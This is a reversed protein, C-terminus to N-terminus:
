EIRYHRRGSEVDDSEDESDAIPEFDPFRRKPIFWLFEYLLPFRDHNRVDFLHWQDVPEGNRIANRRYNKVLLLLAYFIIEIDLLFVDVMMEFQITRAIFLAITFVHIVHEVADCFPETSFSRVMNMMAMGQIGLGNMM